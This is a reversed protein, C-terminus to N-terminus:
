KASAQLQTAQMSLQMAVQKNGLRRNVDARAACVDALQRAPYGSSAFAEYAESYLKDAAALKGHSQAEQAQRVIMTAKAVATNKAFVKQNPNAFLFSFIIAAMVVVLTGLSVAPKRSIRPSYEEVRFASAKDIEAYRPAALVSNGRIGTLQTSVIGINSVPAAESQSVQAATYARQSDLNMSMAYGENHIPLSRAPPETRKSIAITSLLTPLSKALVNFTSFDHFPILDRV